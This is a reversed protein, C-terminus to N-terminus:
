GGRVAPHRPAPVRQPVGAADDNARVLLLEAGAVSRTVFAGPAALGATRGAAVWM